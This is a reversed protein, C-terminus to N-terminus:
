RVRGGGNHRERFAGGKVEAGVGGEVGGRRGGEGGCGGGVGGVREVGGAGGEVNGCDLDKEAVREGQEGGVVAVM